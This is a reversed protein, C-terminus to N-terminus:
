RDALVARRLSALDTEALRGPLDAPREVSIGVGEEEILRMLAGHRLTALPLGSGLYEFAKNPLATDIHAGNLTANFGAWGLDYRPLTALLAAPPLPAHPVLGPWPRALAGYDPAPRPPPAHLSPAPAPPRPSR